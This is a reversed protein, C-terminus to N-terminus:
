SSEVYGTHTQTRTQTHALNGKHMRTPKGKCGMKEETRTHNLTVENGDVKRRKIVRFRAERHSFGTDNKGRATVPASDTLWVFYVCGVKERGRGTEREM